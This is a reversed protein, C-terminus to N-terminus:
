LFLENSESYSKQGIKKKNDQKNFHMNCLMEYQCELTWLWECGWPHCTCLVNKGAMHMCTCVCM